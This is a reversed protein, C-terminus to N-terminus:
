IAESPCKLLVLWLNVMFTHLLVTKFHHGIIIFLLLYQEYCGETNRMVSKRHFINARFVLISNFLNFLLLNWVNSVKSTYMQTPRCDRFLFGTRKFEDKFRQRITMIVQRQELRVLQVETLVLWVWCSCYM